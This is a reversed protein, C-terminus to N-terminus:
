NPTRYYELYTGSADYGETGIAGYAGDPHAFCITADSGDQDQAVWTAGKPYKAM